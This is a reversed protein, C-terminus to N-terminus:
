GCPPCANESPPRRSHDPPIRLGADILLGQLIRREDAGVDLLPSRVSGGYYGLMDMAAKLGPVGFTATVATNLAIMRRQLEAAADIQNARYLRLIELCAEPAINALALIGGVAGVSLGALFFGASGALVAFQEISATLRVIEGLKGIIGGTDKIGVINPHEALAAITTPNMEVHTFKPVDYLIVPIPSGDAVAEFHRRLVQPTMQTGFYHPTIVLAADAGADAARRSLEITALTSECGTGAIILKENPATARATKWLAVREDTTLYVAEGNSGCVVYGALPLPNWRALNEALADLALEGEAGYPTPIPPLVGRLQASITHTM